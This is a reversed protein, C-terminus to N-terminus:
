LGNLYFYIHYFIDCFLLKIYNGGSGNYFRIKLNYLFFFFDFKKYFKLLIIVIERTIVVNNGGEKNSLVVTNVTQSNLSSTNNTM